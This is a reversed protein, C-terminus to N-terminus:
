ISNCCSHTVNIKYLDNNPDVVKLQQPKFEERLKSEMDELIGFFRMNPACMVSRFSNPRLFSGLLSTKALM